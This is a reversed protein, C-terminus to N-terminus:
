RAAAAAAATAAAAAAAAAAVASSRSQQRGLEECAVAWAVAPNVGNLLLQLRREMIELQIIHSTSPPMSAFTNLLRIPVPSPALRDGGAGAADSAALRQVADREFVQFLATPLPQAKALAVAKQRAAEFAQDIVPFHRVGVRYRSKPFFGGDDATCNKGSSSSSGLAGTGNGNSSGAAGDFDAPVTELYYAVWSRGRESRQYTVGMVEELDPIMPYGTPEEEVKEADRRICVALKWAKRFGLRKVPFWERHKKQRAHWQSIWYLGKRDFCVGRVRPIENILAVAEEGSIADWDVQDMADLLSWYEERLVEPAGKFASGRMGSGTETAGAAAAAAAAAAAVGSRWWNSSSRCPRVDLELPVGNATTAPLGSVGLATGDSGGTGGAAAAAAAATTSGKRASCSADASLPTRPPSSLMLGAAARLLEPPAWLQHQHLLLLQQQQQQDADDQATVPDHAGSVSLPTGGGVGLAASLSLQRKRERQNKLFFIKTSRALYKAREFGHKKVGFCRKVHRR